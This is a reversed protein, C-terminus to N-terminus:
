SRLRRVEYPKHMSDDLLHNMLVCTYHSYKAAKPFGTTGSTSLLAATTSKAKEASDFRIWEKEGHELLDHVPKHSGLSAPQHFYDLLYVNSDPVGLHEATATVKRLLDSDTMLLRANTIRMHHILESATYAPNCGTFRGGAGIIGLLLIPYM